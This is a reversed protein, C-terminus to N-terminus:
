AKIKKMAGTASKTKTKYKSESNNADNAKKEKEILVLKAEKWRNSFNGKMVLAIMLNVVLNPHKGSAM